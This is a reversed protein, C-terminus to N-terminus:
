SRCTSPRTGPRACPSSARRTPVTRSISAGPRKRRSVQRSPLRAAARSTITGSSFGTITRNHCFASSRTTCPAPMAVQFIAAPVATDGVFLADGIRYTLCAPTHGPTHMVECDLNGIRFSEGDQWLHQFENPEESLNQLNFVPKFVDRVDKIHSGIAIGVELERRMYPAGSLHDAHAHTELLWAVHLDKERVYALVKDASETFTRGSAADFDLVADIIVAQQTDPCSAVYTITSTRTDFFGEVLPKTLNNM